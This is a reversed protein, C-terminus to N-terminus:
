ARPWNLISTMADRVEGPAIITRVTARVALSVGVIWSGDHAYSTRLPARPWCLATALSRRDLWLRTSGITSSSRSRCLLSGVKDNGLAKQDAKYGGAMHVAAMQAALMAEVQDRPEIGKIVSLMFNTGSESAEREKSANVLQGILGSYFDFDTTGIAQMLVTNGTPLDPHDVEIQVANKGTVAV